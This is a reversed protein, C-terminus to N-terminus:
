KLAIGRGEVFERIDDLTIVEPDYRVELSDETARGGVVGPEEELAFLVVEADEISAVTTQFDLIVKEVNTEPTPTATPVPTPTLPAPTAPPPTAPEATPTPPPPTATPAAQEAGGCGTALLIVMVLTMPMMALINKM